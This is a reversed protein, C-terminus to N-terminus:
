GNSSVWKMRKLWGICGWTIGTMKNRRDELNALMNAFEETTYYLGQSVMILSGTPLWIMENGLKWDSLSDDLLPIHCPVEIRTAQVGEDLIVINSLNGLFSQLGKSITQLEAGNRGSTSVQLFVLRTRLPQFLIWIWSRQQVFQYWEGCWDRRTPIPCDLFTHHQLRLAFEEAPIPM